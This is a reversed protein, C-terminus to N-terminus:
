QEGNEQQREVLQDVCVLGIFVNNETSLKRCIQQEFFQTPIKISAKAFQLSSLSLYQVTTQVINLCNIFILNPM